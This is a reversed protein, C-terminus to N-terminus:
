LYTGAAVSSGVVMAMTSSGAGGSISTPNFSVTVGSPAGSASLSIASNFGGVATTTITSSGSNGPVVSVSAPSAAVTFNKGPPSAGASDAPRFLFLTMAFVFTITCLGRRLTLLISLLARLVTLLITYARLQSEASGVMVVKRLSALHGTSTLRGFTFGSDDKPLVRM